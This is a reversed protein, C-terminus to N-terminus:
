YIVSLFIFLYLWLATLAHWFLGALHLGLTNKSNVRYMLSRIIQVVVVLIAAIIHAAHAGTLLMFFSGSVNNVKVDVGLKGSNDVFRVGQEYLESFGIYQFLLFLVGLILSAFLGLNLQAHKDRKASRYAWWFTGSSALAVLTSLTFTLPMSFHQWSQNRMNDNMSVIMASTFGAFIMVMSVIYLWMLFRLAFPRRPDASHPSAAISMQM